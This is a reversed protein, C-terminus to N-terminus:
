AKRTRAITETYRKAVASWDFRDMLRERLRLAHTAATAPAALVRLVAEALAKADGPPVRSSADEPASLVDRVAPLDGVVVPCGCAIAEITVLGLGERDGGASEVFPAVFVAARRYLAPLSEQAVPGLFRVAHGIGLRAVQERLRTEEPGFGTITLWAGPRSRLIAPMADLLVHLGKKEVLRGVFLLEESKRPTSDPTFRDRIDVGMPLVEVVGPPVGIRVLEDRMASSVVTLVAARRAVFSKAKDLVRGRLAFLDAGHSTVVFPVVPGPLHQLLAAILGQPMLWHAHIVDIRERRVLRWAHWVQMLVFSPLLLWKWRHLRLNAVIGGDNVLTELFEPAYRYRVVTVGDFAETTAAGPAHPCLVITDFHDVLRKSLEHVFGPEPDGDWRPYTSALVLLRSRKISSPLPDPM